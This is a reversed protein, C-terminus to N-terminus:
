KLLLKWVWTISVTVIGGIEALTGGAIAVLFPVPLDFGRIHFGQLFVVLVFFVLTLGYAWLAFNVTREGLSLVRKAFENEPLKEPAEKALTVKSKLYVVEPAVAM